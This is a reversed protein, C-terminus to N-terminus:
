KARIIKNFEGEYKPVKFTVDDLGGYQNGIIDFLEQYEYINYESGDCILYGSPAENGAFEIIHGIINDTALSTSSVSLNTTPGNSGNLLIKVVDNEKLEKSFEIYSSSNIANYEDNALLVGEVWIFVPKNVDHEINLISTDSEIVIELSQISNESILAWDGNKYFVYSNLTTDYYMDGNEISPYQVSGDPQQEVRTIPPSDFQGLFYIVKGSKNIWGAHMLPWGNLTATDENATLTLNNIISSDFDTSDRYLIWSSSDNDYDSLIKTKKVDYNPGTTLFELSSISGNNYEDSLISVFSTM